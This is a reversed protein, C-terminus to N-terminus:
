ILLMTRMPSPPHRISPSTSSEYWGARACDWGLVLKPSPATFTGPSVLTFVTLLFKLEEKIVQSLPKKEETEDKAKNAKDSKSKGIM